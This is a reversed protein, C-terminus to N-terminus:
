NEAEEIELHSSTSEEAKQVFDSTEKSISDTSVSTPVDEENIKNTVPNKGKVDLSDITDSSFNQEVVAETKVNSDDAKLGPISDLNNRAQLASHLQSVSHLEQQLAQMFLPMTYVPRLLVQVNM